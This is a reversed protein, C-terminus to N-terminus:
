FSVTVKGGGWWEDKDTGATPDAIHYAYDGFGTVSLWRTVQFVLEAGAQFHNFGFLPRSTSLPEPSNLRAFFQDRTINTGESRDGFSYSILATPELRLVDPLNPKRTRVIPIV